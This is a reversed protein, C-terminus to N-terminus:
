QPLGCLTPVLTCVTVGVVFYVAAYLLLGVIVMLLEEGISRKM